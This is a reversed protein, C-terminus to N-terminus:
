QVKVTLLRALLPVLVTAGRLLLLLSEWYYFRREFRCVLLGLKGASFIRKTFM